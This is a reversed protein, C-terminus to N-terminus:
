SPVDLFKKRNATDLQQSTGLAPAFHNLNQYHRIGGGNRGFSEIEVMLDGELPM